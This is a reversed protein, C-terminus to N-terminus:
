QVESVIFTQKLYGSISEDVRYRKNNIRIYDFAKDYSGQIRVIRAGQKIAGYVINKTDKGADTVNAYAKAEIVTDPLYDGTSDDLEGEIIKQFYIRTDFRM